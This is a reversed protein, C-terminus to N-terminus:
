ETELNGGSIPTGWSDATIGGIAVTDQGVRLTITYQTGGALESEVNDLSIAAKFVRGSNMTIVIPFSECEEMPIVLVEHNTMTLTATAEGQNSWWNEEINLTGSAYMNQVEVKAIEDDAVETGLTPVLVLKTLAHQMLLSVKNSTVLKSTAILYDTVGDATITVGDASAGSVYPSLACIVQKDEGEYLVTSNSNWNTGNHYWEVNDANYKEASGTIWVSMSANEEVSGILQGEIIVRTSLDAVGASAITLPTDKLSDPSEIEQQDCSIFLVSLLTCLVSSLTCLVSTTGPNTKQLNTTKM